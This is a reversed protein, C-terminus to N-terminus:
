VETRDLAVLGALFAVVGYGVCWWFAGWPIPEVDAFAGELAFLQSQPPLVFGVADALPPALPLFGANGLAAWVMALIALLLALWADLRTLTSLLFTLGGWVAVHAAILVLTAPGAWEGLMILDFLPMLIASLAYALGALLLFRVGYLIGPAVPRVALIRAHGSDRDASVVGAMLVLTAVLPFRGLLWGTLLVGSILPYGGLAFLSDMELHGDRRGLTAATGAAALFVAAFALLALIRRRRALLDLVAMRFAAAVTRM